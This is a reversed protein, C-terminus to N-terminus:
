NVWLYLLITNSYIMDSYSVVNNMFQLIPNFGLYRIIAFLYYNYFYSLSKSRGCQLVINYPQELGSYSKNRIVVTKLSSRLLLPKLSRLGVWSLELQLGYPPCAMTYGPKGPKCGSDEIKRCFPRASPATFVQLWM